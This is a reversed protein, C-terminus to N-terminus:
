YLCITYDLLNWLFRLSKQFNETIDTLILLLKDFGKLDNTINIKKGYAEGGPMLITIVSSKSSVDIGVVFDNFFNSM